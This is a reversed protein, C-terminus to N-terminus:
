WGVAACHCGPVASNEGHARANFQERQGGLLVVSQSVHITCHRRHLHEQLAREIHPRFRDWLLSLRPKIYDLFTDESVSYPLLDVM